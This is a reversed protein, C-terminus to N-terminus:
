GTPILVDGVYEQLRGVTLSPEQLFVVFVCGFGSYALRFGNPCAAEDDPHRVGVVEPPPPWVVESPPPWEYEDEYRSRLLWQESLTAACVSRWPVKTHPYVALNIARKLNAGGDPPRKRQRQVENQLWM